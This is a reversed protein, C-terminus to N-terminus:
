SYGQIQQLIRKRMLALQNMVVDKVNDSVDVMQFELYPGFWNARTFIKTRYDLGEPKQKTLWMLGTTGANVTLTLNHIFVRLLYFIPLLLYWLWQALLANTLSTVVVGPCVVHSYIGQSNWLENLAVSLADMCYKSSAYSNKGKACMVDDPDFLQTLASSSSTWILQTRDDDGHGGMIDQLETVMLFHGFVNTAFTESLGDRTKGDTVADLMGDGTLFMHVINGSFFGKICNTWNVRAQPMMGANLFVFDLRNYRKRIEEVAFLVSKSDSVDLVLSSFETEPYKRKFDGLVTQLKKPNRGTLCIHM